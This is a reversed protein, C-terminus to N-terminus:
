PRSLRLDSAIYVQVTERLKIDRKCNEAQIMEGAADQVRLAVLLKGTMINRTLMMNAHQM